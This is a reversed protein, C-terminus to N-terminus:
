RDCTCAGPGIMGRHDALTKGALKPSILLVDAALIPVDLLEKDEVEEARPGVLEVIIERPGSIAIVDGPQLTM